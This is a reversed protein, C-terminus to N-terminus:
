SVEAADPGPSAPSAETGLLQQFDSTRSQTIAAPEEPSRFVQGGPGKRAGGGGGGALEAPRPM